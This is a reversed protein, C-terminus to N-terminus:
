TFFTEYYCDIYWGIVTVLKNVITDYDEAGPLCVTTVQDNLPVPTELKMVALDYLTNNRHYQPHM